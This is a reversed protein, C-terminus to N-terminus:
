AAARQLSLYLTERGFLAGFKESAAVAEVSVANGTALAVGEELAEGVEAPVVQRALAVVGALLERLRALAASQASRAHAAELSRTADIAGFCAKELKRNAHSDGRPLIARHDLLSHCQAFYEELFHANFRRSEGHLSKFWRWDQAFAPSSGLIELEGLEELVTPVPLCLDFYAPNLMNDHVWDIATRTMAPMTALHGSFARVLVGTKEEFEQEPPCLRAAIARRVMNPLFGVPSVATVVLVGGPGVFNSLKRLLAREHASYGLWNECIVVDFTAGPSYDELKSCVLAPATHPLKQAKYVAEIDMVGTPNPELLTLKAPKQAAVYLSNQGSGAAVELVNAGKFALPILGLSRYLSERRQLHADVSSFDYRVPSIGHRIYYDLHSM